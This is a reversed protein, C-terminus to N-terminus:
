LIERFLRFPKTQMRILNPMHLLQEYRTGVMDAGKVEDIITYPIKKAGFEYAKFEDENEAEVYKGSLQKAVLAKALVINM